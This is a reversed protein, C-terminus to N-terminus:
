VKLLIAEPACTIVIFSAILQSPVTKATTPTPAPSVAPVDFVLGGHAFIELPTIVISADFVSM